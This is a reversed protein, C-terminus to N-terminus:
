SGMWVFVVVFVALLVLVVTAVRGGIRMEERTPKRPENM